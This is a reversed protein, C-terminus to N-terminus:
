SIATFTIDVRGASGVGGNYAPNDVMSGDGGNGYGSGNAGGTVPWVTFNLAGSTGAVGDPSGGAGGAGSSGSYILGAGGGTATITGFSGTVSTSGGASGSTGPTTAYQANLGAAGGAGVVVTLTEGPVVTVSASVRKGGSGGAGGAYLNGFPYDAWWLSAGGGGAGYLSYTLSYCGAPVVPYYTGPTTYTTSTTAAPYIKKIVGSVRTYVATVRKISGSVKANMQLVQKIAGSYRTYVARTM